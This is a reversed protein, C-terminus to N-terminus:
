GKDAYCILIEYWRRGEKEMRVDHIILEQGDYSITTNRADIPREPWHRKTVDYAKVFNVGAQELTRSGSRQEVGVWDTYTTATGKSPTGNDTQTNQYVNFTAEINLDAIM